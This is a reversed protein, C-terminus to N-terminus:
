EVTLLILDFIVLLAEVVVAFAQHNNIWVLRHYKSLGKVSSIRNLLLIQQSRLESLYTVFLLRVDGDLSAATQSRLQDVVRAFVMQVLKASEFFILLCDFIFPIPRTGTSGSM